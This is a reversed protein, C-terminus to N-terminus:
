YGWRHFERTQKNNQSTSEGVKVKKVECDKGLLSKMNSQINYKISEKWQSGAVKTPMKFTHNSTTYDALVTKM